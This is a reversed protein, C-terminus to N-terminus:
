IINLIYWVVPPYLVPKSKIKIKLQPNLEILRNSLSTKRDPTVVVLSTPCTIIVQEKEFILLINKAENKGRHM